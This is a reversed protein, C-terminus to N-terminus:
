PSSAASRQRCGARDDVQPVVPRQASGSETRDSGPDTPGPRTRQGRRAACTMPTTFTVGSEKESPPRQNSGAVRWRGRGPGTAASPGVDDVDAALRGPRAGLRDVRGLLLAPHQRHDRRQGVVDPDRDVGAVGVRGDGGDLRAGRDDVVDRRRQGLHGGLAAHAPHRHVHVAIGPRHLVGRGVLSTTASTRSKRTSRASAATAPPRRRPRSRGPSRSRCSRRWLRARSAWRSASTAVPSGPRADPQRALREEAAQERGGVGRALAGAAARARRRRCRRSAVVGTGTSSRMSPESAAATHAASWPTRWPAPARRAPWRRRPRARRRMASAPAAHHGLQPFHACPMWGRLKAQIM